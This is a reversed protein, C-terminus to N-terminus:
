PRVEHFHPTRDREPILLSRLRVLASEYRRHATAQSVGLLNGVEEFSLGGWLRAVLVERLSPELREVAALTEARELPGSPDEHHVEPPAAMSERRARRFGGRNAKSALNKCVTFLWARPREPPPEAVALRCFAEQVIDEWDNSRARTWVQLVGAHHAILEALDRPSLPM